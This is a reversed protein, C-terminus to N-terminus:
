KARSALALGWPGDGAPIRKIVRGSGVDIVSVDNSPGNATYLTRGASTVAIGWPRTGINEITQTVRMAHLDLVSVTAARGNSIFARYEYIAVGMPRAPSSATRPLAITQLVRRERADVVTVAGENECTVVALQGDMTFAVSRPRAGVALRTNVMRGEVEIIAVENKEESTVWVTKGDPATTVGEPEEGVPVVAAIEGSSSDVISTTATEENSVFIWKGDPTFDFCEPDQGSPLIRLVQRKVVDIVAIGDAARDAPPAKAPDAGPPLRPSGSVAVYLLKGDPSLRLGRPRKGVPITAIAANRGTDVVTIDGSNENSVYLLPAPNGSCASLVLAALLAGGQVFCARWAPTGDIDSIVARIM